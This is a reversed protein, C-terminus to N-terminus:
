GTSRYFARSPRRINYVESGAPDKFYSGLLPFRLGYREIAGPTHCGLGALAGAYNRFLKFSVQVSHQM